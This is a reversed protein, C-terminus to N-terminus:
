DKTLKRLADMSLSFKQAEEKSEQAERAVREVYSKVDDLLGDMCYRFQYSELKREVSRNEHSFSLSFPSDENADVIIQEVIYPQLHPGSHHAELVFYDKISMRPIVKGGRVLPQEYLYASMHHVQISTLLLNRHVGIGLFALGSHIFELRRNSKERIGFLKFAQLETLVQHIRLVLQEIATGYPLLARSPRLPFFTDLIETYEIVPRAKEEGLDKALTRALTEKAQSKSIDGSTEIAEAAKELADAEERKKFRKYLEAVTRVITIFGSVLSM